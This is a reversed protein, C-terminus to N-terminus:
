WTSRGPPRRRAPYCRARAEGSGPVVVVGSAGASAAAAAFAAAEDLKAQKYREVAERHKASVCEDVIRRGAKVDLLMSKSAIQVMLTQGRVDELRLAGTSSLVPKMVYLAKGQKVDVYGPHKANKEVQATQNFECEHSGYFVQDAASLQEPSAAAPGADVPAAKKGAAAKAAPKVAPAAKAPKADAALVGGALPVLLLAALVIPLRMALPDTRTNM